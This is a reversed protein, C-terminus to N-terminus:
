EHDFALFFHKMCFALTNSVCSVYVSTMTGTLVGGIGMRLETVEWTGSTLIVLTVFLSIAYSSFYLKSLLVRRSEPFADMFLGMAYSPFGCLIACVQWPHQRCLICGAVTFGLIQSFTYLVEFERLLRSVLHRSMFSMSRAISPVMLSALAGTLWMPGQGTLCCLGSIYGTAWLIPLLIDWFKAKM